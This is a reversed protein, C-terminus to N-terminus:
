MNGDQNFNLRQHLMKGCQTDESVTKITQVKVSVSREDKLIALFTLSELSIMSGQLVLGQPSCAM